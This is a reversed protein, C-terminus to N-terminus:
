IFAQKSLLKQAAEENKSYELELRISSLTDNIPTQYYYLEYIKAAMERKANL